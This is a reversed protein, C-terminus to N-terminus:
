AAIPPVASLTYPVRMTARVGCPTNAALALTGAPGYLTQLRARINALGIGTGGSGSFGVGTDAVVVELADGDRRASVALRGGQPAPGLGHKVANEVLTAITLAPFTCGRLAEPVDIQLSMRGTMRVAVVGLYASVLDIEQGLTNGSDGCGLLTSRLYALFQALLQAGQEPETVHLRRVTALTNFLFHPEIQSRLAQLQAQVIQRETQVRSLEATQAAASAAATRRWLYYLAAISAALIVWRGIRELASAADPPADLGGFVILMLEGLSAGAVIAAGLTAARTPASRGAFRSGAAIALAVSLTVALRQGFLALWSAFIEDAEFNLWVFPQALLQTSMALAVLLAWGMATPFALAAPAVPATNRAAVLRGALTPLAPERSKPAHMNM